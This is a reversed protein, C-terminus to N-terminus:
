SSGGYVVAYSFVGGDPSVIKLPYGAGPMLSAITVSLTATCSQSITLAVKCGNDPTAAAGNLFFDADSMDVISAGVNRVTLTLGSNLPFNYGEMIIQDKTQQGGSSSLSGLLGIAFVYLLIAAAVAIAILLLAAIVQSVARGNFHKDM